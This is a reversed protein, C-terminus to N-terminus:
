ARWMSVSLGCMRMRMDNDDESPQGSGDPGGTGVTGGSGGTGVTGVSGGTGVTGVNDGGNSRSQQRQNNNNNHPIPDFSPERLATGCFYRLLDRKVAMTLASFGESFLM